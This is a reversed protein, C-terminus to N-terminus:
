SRAREINQVEGIDLRVVFGNLFLYISLERPRKAAVKPRIKQCIQRGNNSM